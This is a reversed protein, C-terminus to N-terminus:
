EPIENSKGYLYYKVPVLNVNKKYRQENFPIKYLIGIALYNM